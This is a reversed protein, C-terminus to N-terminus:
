NPPYCEFLPLDSGIQDIENFQYNYKELDRVIKKIILDRTTHITDHPEIIIKPQCKNFFEKDEFIVEEAGEIDCKIFDVRSLNKLKVLESLTYSNIKENQGGRFEPVGVISVASSGMSGESSFEIGNNHNWMAGYVLDISSNTINKYLKFNKEIADINQRDAEVAIVTGEHGVLDKFLISTLGSYAGLDLVVDRPKLKAFDLYQNTAFIPEAIAPFYIPHRDYGIVDHYKPESFDVIEKDAYVLPAVSKFYFDFELIIGYLYIMHHVGLRLIQSGKRLEIDHASAVIEIGLLSASQTAPHNYNYRYLEEITSLKKM